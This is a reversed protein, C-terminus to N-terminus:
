SLFTSPGHFRTARPMPAIMPAPMKAVIPVAAAPSACRGPAPGANITDNTRVAITQPNERMLFPALSQVPAQHLFRFPVGGMTGCSESADTPLSPTSMAPQESDLEIGAPQKDPLLPGIRFFEELVESQETPDIEGLSAVAQQLAESQAASMQRVLAAAHEQDLSAVLIAAKRLHRHPPRM